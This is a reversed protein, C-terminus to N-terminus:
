KDVINTEALATRAVDLPNQKLGVLFNSYVTVRKRWVFDDLNYMYSTDILNMDIRHLFVTAAM